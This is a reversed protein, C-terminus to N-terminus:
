PSHDVSDGGCMGAKVPHCVLSTAFPPGDGRLVEDTDPESTTPTYRTTRM